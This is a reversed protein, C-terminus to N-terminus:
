ERPVLDTYLLGMCKRCRTKVPARQPPRTDSGGLRHRRWMGFTSLRSSIAAGPQWSGRSQESESDELRRYGEPVEAM